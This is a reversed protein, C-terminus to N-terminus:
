CICVAIYSLDMDLFLVNGPLEKMVRGLCDGGGGSGMRVCVSKHHKEGCM